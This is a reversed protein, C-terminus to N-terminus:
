CNMGRAFTSAKSSPTRCPNAQQSSTGHPVSRTPGHSFPIAPSEAATTALWQEAQWARHDTPGTGTGRTRRLALHRGAAGPVRPYLGRGRDPIPLPSQRDVSGLSWRDNPMMPVLMPAGTGVARKRGGRRRVILKDERYVSLAKTTESVGGARASCAAALLRLPPTGTARMGQRLSAESVGHKRRPDAVSVGAEHEKLIGIIQEKRKM